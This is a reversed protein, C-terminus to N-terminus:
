RKMYRDIYGQRIDDLKRHIESNSNLLSITGILHM